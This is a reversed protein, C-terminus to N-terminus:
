TASTSSISSCLLGSKQDSGNLKLLERAGMMETLLSQVVLIILLWILAALTGAIPLIGEMKDNSVSPKLCIVVGIATFTKRQRCLGIFHGLFDRALLVAPREDAAV